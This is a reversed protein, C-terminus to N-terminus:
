KIWVDWIELDVPVFDGILLGFHRVFTWMENASMKIKSINLVQSSLQPPKNLKESNGYHFSSIRSNLIDLTFLKLDLILIQLISTMDNICIGEFCDHMVDVSYNNTLHFNKLENWICLEKIGTASPDALQVDVDYM